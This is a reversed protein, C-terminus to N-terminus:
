YGTSKTLLEDQKSGIDINDSELRRLRRSESLRRLYQRDILHGHIDFHWRKNDKWEIYVGMRKGDPTKGAFVMELLARKNEYPMKGMLWEGSKSRYRAGGASVSKAAKKIQELTPLNELAASLLEREKNLKAERNNLSQMKPKAQEDTLTGSAISDILRDIGLKIDKFEREIREIDKRQQIVKDRNPTAREIAKQVTIPDGFMEFLHLLVMNEIEEANVCNCGQGRDCKQAAKNPHSRPIHRYYKWKGQASQGFLAFGCHKCFIMRGLLYHNTIEGHRYTRNAEAKKNIAQITKEDLLRPIECPVDEHINLKKSHFKQVWVVGSKQTLIRHLNSHDINYKEALDKLKEGALYRQAIDVINAQKKEDIGWQGTKKDFTRGYPLPRSTPINKKARDIRSLMSKQNQTNAQFEGIEAAMGLFLVHEPKFLDWETSGTFFRIENDRLIRLGQKSKSNDRSWRDPTTVMVADFKNKAADSLLRDLERKEYGETGHEAGGYNSTVVGGLRDINEALQKKQVKLSEGQKEQQETSVRILAAFRIPKSKDNM